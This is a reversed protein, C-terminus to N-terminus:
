REKHQRQERKYVPERAYKLGVIMVKKIGSSGYTINLLCINEICLLFKSSASLVVAWGRESDM